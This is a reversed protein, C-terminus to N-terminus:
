GFHVSVPSCYNLSQHLRQHNYFQFYAKLNVIADTVSAYSKLYVEEYKVSRWLREIFINDYARGKGDQSIQIGQQELRQTFATSTFQAGQDSNFIEPKGLLLSNDLAELCFYVDMTNSVQWALVYRSFWDLVAVLYVFGQSLRIYTIDTSWVQNPATLTLGKLLYPYRRPHDGPLSLRPKAYIAELGMKRMLRRVRKPNVNEGQDNLYATMRRVGYFPTRTFQEDIQRMLHENQPTERAPKYYLSARNLGLLECQRSIPISDHNLEILSRKDSV